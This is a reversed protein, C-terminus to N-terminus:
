ELEFAGVPNSATLLRVGTSLLRCFNGVTSGSRDGEGCGACKDVPGVAKGSCFLRPICWSTKM